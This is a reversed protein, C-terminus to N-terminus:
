RQGPDVSGAEAPPAQDQEPETRAPAADPRDRRPEAEAPTLAVGPVPEGTKLVEKTRLWLKGEHTWTSELVSEYVVGVSDLHWTLKVQVTAAEGDATMKVRTIEYDDVFLEGDLRELRDLFQERDKPPLRAAADELRRWRLGEQYARIENLLDDEHGRGKPAGACALACVAILILVRRSM